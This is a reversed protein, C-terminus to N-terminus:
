RKRKRKLKRRIDFDSQTFGGIELAIVSEGDQFITERLLSLGDLKRLKTELITIADTNIKRYQWDSVM